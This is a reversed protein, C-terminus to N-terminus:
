FNVVEMHQLYPLDISVVAISLISTIICGVDDAANHHFCGSNSIGFVLIGAQAQRRYAPCAFSLHIGFKLFMKSMQAESKVNAM